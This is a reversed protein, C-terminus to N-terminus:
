RNTARINIAEMLFMRTITKWEENLKELLTTKRGSTHTEEPVGRPFQFIAIEEKWKRGSFIPLIISKEMPHESDTTQFLWNYTNPENRWFLFLWVMTLHSVQSNQIKYEYLTVYIALCLKKVQLCRLHMCSQEHCTVVRTKTGQALLLMAYPADQM